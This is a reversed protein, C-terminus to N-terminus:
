LVLKGLPEDASGARLFLITCHLGEVAGPEAAAFARWLGDYRARDREVLWLSVLTNQHCLVEILFGIL